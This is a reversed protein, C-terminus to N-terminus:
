HTTRASLQRYHDAIIDDPISAGQGSNDITASWPTGAQHTLTSLMLGTRNGYGKWVQAMISKEQPSFDDDPECTPIDSIASGGFHKFEHYLSPIVPGYKWAKVPENVLPTGLLGLCWGHAIYVLKQLKMPSVAAGAQDALWLVYDAVRRPNHGYPM